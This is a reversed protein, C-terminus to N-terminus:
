KFNTSEKRIICFYFLVDALPIILILIFFILYKIRFANFLMGFRFILFSVACTIATLTLMTDLFFNQALGFRVMVLQIILIALFSYIIIAILGDYYQKKEM